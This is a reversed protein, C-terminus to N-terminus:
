WVVGCWVIVHAAVVVVVGCWVVGYRVACSLAILCCRSLSYVGLRTFSDGCILYAGGFHARNWSFFVADEQQQLELETLPTPPPPPPCPPCPKHPMPKACQGGAPDSKCFTVGPHSSCPQPKTTCGPIPVPKVGKVPPVAVRGVELNDPTQWCGPRSLPHKPDLYPRTNNLNRIWSGATHCPHPLKHCPDPLIGSSNNIDGSIRYTNYPCFDLTPCSANDRGRMYNRNPSLAGSPGM